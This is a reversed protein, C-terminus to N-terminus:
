HASPVAMHVDQSDPRSLRYRAHAQAHHRVTRRGDVRAHDRTQDGALITEFVELDVDLPKGSPCSRCPKEVELNVRARSEEPGGGGGEDRGVHEGPERHVNAAVGVDQGEAGPAHAGDPHHVGEVM